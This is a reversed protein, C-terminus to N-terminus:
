YKLYGVKYAKIDVSSMLFICSSYMLYMFLAVLLNQKGVRAEGVTFYEALM